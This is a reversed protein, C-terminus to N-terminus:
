NDPGLPTTMLLFLLLLRQACNIDRIDVADRLLEPAYPVLVIDPGNEFCFV